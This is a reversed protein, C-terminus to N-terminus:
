HSVLETVNASWVEQEMGACGGMVFVMDGHVVASMERCSRHLPPGMHWTRGDYVQVVNLHRVGGRGDDGLGGMVMLGGGHVSVVCSRVCGVLMEPMSTWRGGKWVVVEKSCVDVNKWGGVSVLEGACAALTAGWEGDALREWKSNVEDLRFVGGGLGGRWVVKGQVEVVGGGYGM